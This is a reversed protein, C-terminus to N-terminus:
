HMVVVKTGFDFFWAAATLKDPNCQQGNAMPLGRQQDGYWSARDAAPCIRCSLILFVALALSPGNVSGM